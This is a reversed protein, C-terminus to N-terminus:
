REACPFHEILAEHVLDHATVEADEARSGVYAIIADIVEGAPVDSGICYDDARRSEIGRLYSRARTRIARESFSEAEGSSAPTDVRRERALRTGAIFGQLYALCVLGDGPEAPEDLALCYSGLEDSTLWPEDTAAVAGTLWVCGVVWVSCGRMRAGRNTRRSELVPQTQLVQVLYELGDIDINRM